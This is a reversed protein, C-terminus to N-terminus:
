HSGELNHLSNHGRFIFLLFNMLLFTQCLYDISSKKRTPERKLFPFTKITYIYITGQFVPQNDNEDLIIVSIPVRVVNPERQGDEPEDQVSVQLRVNNGKLSERDIERVVTVAGTNPDASLLDTGLIM